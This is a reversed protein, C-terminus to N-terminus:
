DIGERSLAMIQNGAMNKTQSSRCLPRSGAAQEGDGTAEQPKSMFVVHIDDRVQVINIHKFIVNKNIVDIIGQM